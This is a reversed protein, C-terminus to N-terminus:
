MKSNMKLLELFELGGNNEYNKVLKTFNKHCENVFLKKAGYQFIIVNKQLFYVKPIILNQNM